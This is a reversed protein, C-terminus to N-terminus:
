RTEFDLRRVKRRRRNEQYQLDQQTLIGDVHISDKANLLVVKGLDVATIKDDKIIMQNSCGCCQTKTNSKLETNCCTCRVSLM